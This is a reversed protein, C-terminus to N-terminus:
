REKWSFAGIWFRKGVFEATTTKIDKDDQTVSFEVDLYLNRGNYFIKYESLTEASVGRYEKHNDAYLSVVEGVYKNYIYTKYNDGYAKAEWSVPLFHIFICLIIVIIIVARIIRILKKLM